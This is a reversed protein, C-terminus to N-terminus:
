RSLQKTPSQPGNNTNPSRMVLKYQKGKNAGTKFSPFCSLLGAGRLEGPSTPEVKKVDPASQYKRNPMSVTLPESSDLSRTEADKSSENSSQSNLLKNSSNSRAYGHDRMKVEPSRSNNKGIVCFMAENSSSRDKSQDGNAKDNWAVKVDDPSTDASKPKGNAPFKFCSFTLVGVLTRIDLHQHCFNATNSESISLPLRQANRQLEHNFHLMSFTDSSSSYDGACSRREFDGTIKDCFPRM